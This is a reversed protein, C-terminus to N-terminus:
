SCESYGCKPCTFCGEAAVMKTGCVPCNKEATPSLVYTEAAEKIKSMEIRDGKETGWDPVIAMDNAKFIGEKMLAKVGYESGM